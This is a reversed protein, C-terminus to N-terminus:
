ARIKREKTINREDEIWEKIGNINMCDMLCTRYTYHEGCSPIRGINNLTRLGLHKIWLARTRHEPIVKIKREKEDYKCIFNNM